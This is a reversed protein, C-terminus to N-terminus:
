QLEGLLEDPTRVDVRYPECEALAVMYKVNSTGLPIDASVIRPFEGEVRFPYSSRLIYGPESYLDASARNYGFLDLKADLVHLCGSKAAADRVSQIIEPLTEGQGERSDLSLGLLMLAFDDDTELQRESSIELHEINAVTSTKVEIFVADIRFDKDDGLPGRWGNVAVNMGRVPAVVERLTWLEGWLGRQARRSLGQRGLGRLLHQWNSLRTFFRVVGTKEDSPDEAVEALDQVLLDFIDRHLSDTLTLIVEADHSEGSTVRVNLGRSDPLSPLGGISTESVGLIFLRNGSPTEMGLFLNRRGQPFIRRQVRGHVRRAHSDEELHKWVPTLNM